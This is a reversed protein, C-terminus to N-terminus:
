DSDSFQQISDSESDEDFIEDVIANLAILDDEQM